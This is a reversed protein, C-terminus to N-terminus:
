KKEIHKRKIEAALDLREILGSELIEVVTEWTYPPTTIAKWQTFVDRYCAIPDANHRAKLSDLVSSDIDLMTGFNMWQDPAKAAVDNMLESVKPRVVPPPDIVQPPDVHPPPDIIPSPNCVPSPDLHLDVVPPVLFPDPSLSVM